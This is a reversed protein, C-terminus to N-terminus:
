TTTRRAFGRVRPPFRSIGSTAIGVGAPALGKPGSTSEYVSRAANGSSSIHRIDRARAAHKLAPDSAAIFADRKCPATATSCAISAREHFYMLLDCAEKDLHSVSAIELHTSPQSSLSMEEVVSNADAAAHTKEACVRATQGGATQALLSSRAPSAPHGLLVYAAGRHHNLSTRNDREGDSLAHARLGPTFDNDASSTSLDSWDKNHTHALTAVESDQGSGRSTITRSQYANAIAKRKLTFTAGSPSVNDLSGSFQGDGGRSGQVPSPRSTKLLLPLPPIINGQVPDPGPPQALMYAYLSRPTNNNNNNPASRHPRRLSQVPISATTASM